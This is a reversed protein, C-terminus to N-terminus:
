KLGYQSLSYEFDATGGFEPLLQDKEVFPEIEELKSLLNIKAFTVPDLLPKCVKLLGSYVWNARFVYINKLREAYFNSLRIFEKLIPLDANRYGFQSADYLINYQAANPNKMLSMGLEATFITFLLCEDYDRESAVHLNPRIVINPCGQKDLGFWFAKSTTLENVVQEAKILHPKTEIRWEIWETMLNITATVDFKRARLYRLFTHSDLKLQWDSPEDNSKGYKEVFHNEVKNFAEREEETLTALKELETATKEVPITVSTADTM